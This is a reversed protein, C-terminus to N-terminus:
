VIDIKCCYVAYNFAEALNMMFDELYIESYPHIM